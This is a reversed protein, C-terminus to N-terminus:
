YRGRIQDRIERLEAKLLEYAFGILCLLFATSNGLILYGVGLAFYFIMLGFSLAPNNMFRDIARLTSAIKPLM